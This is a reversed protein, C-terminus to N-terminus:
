NFGEDEEDGMIDDICKDLCDTCIYYSVFEGDVLAKEYYAYQGKKTTHDPEGNGWGAMLCLHDKRVKVFKTTKLLVDSQDGEFYDWSLYEEKTYKM